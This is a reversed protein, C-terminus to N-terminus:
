DKFSNSHWWVRWARVGPGRESRNPPFECFDPILLPPKGGLSTRPELLQQALDALEDSLGLLIPYGLSDELGKLDEQVAPDTQLM